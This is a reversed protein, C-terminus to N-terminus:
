PTTELNCNYTTAMNQDFAIERQDQRALWADLRQQYQDQFCAALRKSDDEKKVHFIGLESITYSVRRDPVEHWPLGKMLTPPDCTIFLPVIPVGARRAIEFVGRHFPWLGHRPSRTGEPFILVPHGEKLRDLAQQIVAGGSMPSGDGGDMHGCLRLLRGIMPGNFIDNRIVCAVGNCMSMIVTVDILTPHNTIMVYPGSPVTIKTKRHDFDHLGTLRLYKHFCIFGYQVITQFRRRSKEPDGSMLAVLPVGLWSVICGGSWFFLFSSGTLIARHVRKINWKTM